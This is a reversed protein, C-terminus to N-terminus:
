AGGPKPKGPKPDAPKPDTPGMGDGGSAERWGADWRPRRSDGFPFPNSIIPKNDRYAEGGLAAAGADDVDPPPTRNSSASSPPRVSPQPKEVVEQATVEGKEDRTLRIPRGGAEVVISGNEPVLKKLAEIVEDRSTIDVNMLGVARFLPTDEAMGMAALYTDLIAEAEQRVHPKMSRIKVVAKIAAPVFGEAKAEAVVLAEDATLDKKQARITEIRDVFASLMQGSVTNRGVNMKTEGKHEAPM